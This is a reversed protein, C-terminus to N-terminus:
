THGEEQTVGAQADVLRVDLIYLISCLVLFYYQDRKCHRARSRKAPSASGAYANGAPSALVSSLERVHVCWVAGSGHKRIPRHNM